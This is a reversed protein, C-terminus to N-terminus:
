STTTGARPSSGAAAGLYLRGCRRAAGVGGPLNVEGQGHWHVVLGDVALVHGRATGGPPCGAALLARRLAARRLGDPASALTEVELVVVGPAREAPELDGARARELLGAALLDITEAQERALDASRVLAESVGPGLVEALVPLVRGRVASRLPDADAANTPDDWWTLGLARCAAATDARRLALLPRVFVGRRAAMGALSRPGSGRALGLLVGEAQDDLTHGLLVGVAGTRASAAELAAYRASRAAAEPGGARAVAVPVVLVPDLGLARCSAAARESVAASEDHLGHDVVVAGARWRVDGGRHQSRRAVFATAAALATSDAGGSCAVLVLPEDLEENGVRPGAEDPVGAEDPAAGRGPAAEIRTAHAGPAAEDALASLAEAVARRTAAVAPDPGTM